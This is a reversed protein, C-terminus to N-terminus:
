MLIPFKHVGVYPGWNGHVTNRQPGIPLSLTSFRNMTTKYKSQEDVVDGSLVSHIPEAVISSVQRGGRYILFPCPTDCPWLGRKQPNPTTERMASTPLGRQEDGLIVVMPFDTSTSLAPLEESLHARRVTSQM